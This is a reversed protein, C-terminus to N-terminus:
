RTEGSEGPTSVSAAPRVAPLLDTAAETHPTAGIAAGTEGTEGTEATEAREPAKPILIWCAVYLIVGAGVGLVTALVLALRLVAADIGLTEALGGCVGAIMREDRSRHLRVPRRTSGTPPVATPRPAAPLATYAPPSTYTPPTTDTPPIDAPPPPNSTLARDTAPASDSVDAAPPTHDAALDAPPAPDTSPTAPVVADPTHVNPPTSPTDPNSTTENM